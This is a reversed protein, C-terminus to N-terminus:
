RAEPPYRTQHELLYEALPGAHVQAGEFGTESGFYVWPELVPGAGSDICVEIRERQYWGPTDIRELADMQVMADDTVEYLEGAVVLGQGPRRLLWPLCRPGVIYLPHPRCSLYRGPV